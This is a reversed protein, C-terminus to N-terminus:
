RTIIRPDTLPGSHDLVDARANQLMVIVSHAEDPTLSLTYKSRPVVLDIYGCLTGSAQFDGFETAASFAKAEYPAPRRRFPIVESM